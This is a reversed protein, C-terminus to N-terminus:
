KGAVELRARMEEGASLRLDEARDNEGALIAASAQGEVAARWATLGDAVQDWRIQRVLAYELEADTFRGDEIAAKARELAALAPDRIAPNELYAVRTRLTANEDLLRRATGAQARIAEVLRAESLNRGQGVIVAAIADVTRRSLRLERAM